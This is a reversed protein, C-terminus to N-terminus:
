GVAGELHKIHNLPNRQGWRYMHFLYLGQAIGIRGGDARVADTFTTDFNITREEFPHRQWVRKPFLMFLGAVPGHTLDEVRTAHQAQREVAIARHKGIDPEDSFRGAHLQYSARLRNTMCGIIAYQPNDRVVAEIQRGWDPTLFLTDGDRLCIWADDPVLACFENLGAGINGSCWPTSHFVAGV